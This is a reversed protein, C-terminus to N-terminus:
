KHIVSLLTEARQTLRDFRKVAQQMWENGLRDAAVKDKRWLQSLEKVRSENIFPQSFENKLPEAQEPPLRNIAKWAAQLHPHIDIITQGMLQNVLQWRLSGLSNDYIFGIREVFPNTPVLLKSPDNPYMSPIIGMRTIGFKQAGGQEGLPKMWLSQGDPSLVFNLFDEAIALHPAGRLIAIGDPNIVSVNPPIFFRVNERGLFTQQSLGNIDITLGYAADGVTVEKLPAPSDPLFSRINGSMQYLIEWGREWGYAQLIIEYIMHVSGSKRPDASSIWSELGPQTLDEWTSVQPLHLYKCVPINQSIGFSSLAAGYYNYDLDYLDVGQVQKPIQNLLEDPIKYPFLHGKIKQSEFPDMGGGFMIDIDCCEPTARYLADVAKEISSTGGLDMWRLLVTRGSKKLYYKEFAQTFEYKVGEWHPSVIVLKDQAQLLTSVLSLFFALSLHRARRTISQDTLV